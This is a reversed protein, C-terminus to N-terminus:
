RAHSSRDRGAFEANATSRVEHGRIRDRANKKELLLPCVLYMPSQRESTHEESRLHRVEVTGLQGDELVIRRYGAADVVEVGAVSIPLADRLSLTSNDSTATDSSLCSPTM